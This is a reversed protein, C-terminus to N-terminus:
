QGLSLYDFTRNLKLVATESCSKWGLPSSVFSELLFHCGFLTSLNRSKGKRPRRPVFGQNSKSAAM